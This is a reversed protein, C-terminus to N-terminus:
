FRKWLIIILWLFEFENQLTHEITKGDASNREVDQLITMGM